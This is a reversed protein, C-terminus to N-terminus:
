SVRGCGLGQVERRPEYTKTEKAQCRPGALLPFLSIRTDTGATSHFWGTM